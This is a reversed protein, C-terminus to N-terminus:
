GGGGKLKKLRALNAAIGAGSKQKIQMDDMNSEIKAGDTDNFLADFKVQDAAVASSIGMKRGFQDLRDNMTSALKNLADALGAASDTPAGAPASVSAKGMAAKLTAVENMLQMVMGAAPGDLGGSAAATARVTRANGGTAEDLAVELERIQAKAVSLNGEASELAECANRHEERLRGFENQIRKAIELERRRENMLRDFEARSREALRDAEEQPILGSDRIARDVAEDIMSAIQAARIVRVRDKGRSQFDDLSRTEARATLAEKVQRISDM